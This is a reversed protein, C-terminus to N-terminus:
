QWTGFLPIFETSGQHEIISDIERKNDEAIQRLDVEGVGEDSERQVIRELRHLDYYEGNYKLVVNGTDGGEHDEGPLKEHYDDIGGDNDFAGEGKFRTYLDSTPSSNPGPPFGTNIYIPVIDDYDHYNEVYDNWRSWTKDSTLPCTPSSFFLLANQDNSFIAEITSDDSSHDRHSEPPWGREHKDSINILNGHSDDDDHNNDTDDNDDDDDDMHHHILEYGGIIAAVGVGIGLAVKSGSSWGKNEEENDSDSSDSNESM